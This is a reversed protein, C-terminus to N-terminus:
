KQFPQFTPIEDQGRPFLQLPDVNPEMGFKLDSLDFAASRYAKVSKAESYQLGFIRPRWIHAIHTDVTKEQSVSELVTYLM